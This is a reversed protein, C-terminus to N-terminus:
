SYIFYHNWLISIKLCGLSVTQLWLHFYVFCLIPFFIFLSSLSWVCLIEIQIAFISAFLLVFFFVFFGDTVPILFYLLINLQMLKVFLHITCSIILLLISWDFHFNQNQYIMSYLHLNKDTQEFSLGKIYCCCHYIFSLLTKGFM